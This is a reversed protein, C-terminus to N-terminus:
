SRQIVLALKYAEFSKTDIAEDSTVHGTGTGFWAEASDSPTTFSMEAIKM